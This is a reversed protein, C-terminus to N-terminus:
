LPPASCRWCSPSPQGRTPTSSSPVRTLRLIVCQSPPPRRRAACVIAIPPRATQVTSPSQDQLASVPAKAKKVRLNLSQSFCTIAILTAAGHPRDGTDLESCSSSGERYARSSRIAGQPGATSHAAPTLRAAVPLPHACPSPSGSSSRRDAGDWGYENYGSLVVSRDNNADRSASIEKVSTSFSKM